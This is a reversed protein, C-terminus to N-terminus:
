IAQSIQVADVLELLWNSSSFLSFLLNLSGQGLKPTNSKVLRISGFMTVPNWGCLNSLLREEGKQINFNADHMSCFNWIQHLKM